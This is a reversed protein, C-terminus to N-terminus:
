VDIWNADSRECIGRKLFDRITRYFREAFVAGVHTNRSYHKINQNNLFFQSINSYFDKGQDSEILNPKRKSSKLINKFSNKITQANRNKLLVTWGFKSFNDIVVVVYRYGRKNEAGWDKSDLIDLSWIDDILFVDTKNTSYNRKSPKSCIENVFTKKNESDNITFKTEMAKLRNELEVYFSLLEKSKYNNLIKTETVTQRYKKWFM